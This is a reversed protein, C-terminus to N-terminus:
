FLENRGKNEELFSLFNTKFIKDFIQLFMFIWCCISFIIVPLMLLLLLKM